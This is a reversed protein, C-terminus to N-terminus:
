GVTKDIHEVVKNALDMLEKELLDAVWIDKKKDPPINWVTVGAIENSGDSAPILRFNGHAFAHRLNTILQKPFDEEAISRLQDKSKELEKELVQGREKLKEELKEWSTHHENLYEERLSIVMCLMSNLLQTFESVSEGEFKEKYIHKLNKRTRRALTLLAQDHPMM